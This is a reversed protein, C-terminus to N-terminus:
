VGYISDGILAVGCHNTCPYERTSVSREPNSEAKLPGANTSELPEPM